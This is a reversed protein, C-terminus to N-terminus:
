SLDPRRVRTMGAAGLRALADHEDEGALRDLEADFLAPRPDSAVLPLGTSLRQFFGANLAQAEAERVGCVIDVGAADLIALGAGDVAPFPDRCAIVCRALGANALAEACPPTVGHHACPELSVYATAGRAADGAAALAQTEAHPRGGAATAAAALLRGDKVLVCGVAPNPATAGLAAFAQALAADMFRRDDPTGTM